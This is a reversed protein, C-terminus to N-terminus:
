FSRCNTVTFDFLKFTPCRVTGICELDGNVYGDCYCKHSIEGGAFDRFGANTVEISLGPKGARATANGIFRLNSLNNGSHTGLVLQRNFFDLDGRDIAGQDVIYRILEDDRIVIQAWPGDTARDLWFSGQNTRCEKFKVWNAAESESVGILSIATLAIVFVISMLKM